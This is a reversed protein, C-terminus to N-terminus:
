ALLVGPNLLNRPDLANKVARMVARDGAERTLHLWAAKAVGVGHEASISGGLSAVLRLLQDEVDDGADGGILEVHVNGEALHGFLVLGVGAGACVRQAEAEFRALEPLPLGVDLKRIPGEAHVAETQRERYVWLAERDARTTAVASAFPIDLGELAQSLEPLPDDLAACAVIVYTDFTERFPPSAGCNRLVLELGNRHFYEVAALSPVARVSQLVKLADAVSGLGLLAVAHASPRPRLRLRTATIIALTGESGCMLAPLEYGTADKPLGGMRRLVTGDALVAEVGLLQERTPGYRVVNLGGANTAVTGGVTASDRSALDVGYTLDAAAAAAHVEGITAGAGAVAQTASTDVTVGGLRTTSLVVEGGRPVSGGVLGTNGGQPVVAAGAAACAKIIDVVEDLARPRVVLRADARFRRTGDVEYPLRLDADTLVHAAGVIRALDRALVDGM